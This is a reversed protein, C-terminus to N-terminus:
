NVRHWITLDFVFSTARLHEAFFNSQFFNCIECSFGQTPTEQKIFNCGQGSFLSESVPTPNQSIKLFVKKLAGGTDVEELVFVHLFTLNFSTQM